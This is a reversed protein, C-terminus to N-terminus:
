RALAGPPGSLGAPGPEADALYCSYGLQSGDPMHRIAVYAGSNRERWLLKGPGHDSQALRKAEPLTDVPQGVHAKAPEGGVPWHLCAVRWVKGPEMRASELAKRAQVRDAMYPGIDPFVAYGRGPPGTIRYTFGGDFGGNGKAKKAIREDPDRPSYTIEYALRVSDYLARSGNVKGDWNMHHFVVVAIDLKEALTVLPEMVKNAGLRTAITSGDQLVKTLPDIIIMSVEPLHAYRENEPDAIDKVLKALKPIDRPVQVKDGSDPWKRLDIVYRDDAGASDLRGKLDRAADDEPAILIVTGPDRRASAPQGPYPDGTTEAKMLAGALIGKGTGGMASILTVTAQLVIGPWRWVWPLETVQDLTVLGGATGAPADKIPALEGPALGPIAPFAL